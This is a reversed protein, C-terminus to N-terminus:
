NSNNLVESIAQAKILCEYYEEEANSNITIGGGVLYQLYETSSNYMISRIVVNFDFDGNSQIYGVSGSFIGRKVDEFKEILEMVKFKPVGTMSAMPFSAKLIDIFTIKENLEGSITSILQHVKPFSYVACLENVKVSNEKCIKNFDNRVLDVVMVNESINKPSNKLEQKLAEDLELNNSRHMTGKIPQSIITNNEKRLYREPSACILFKDNLKYYCNFPNPSIVSLSQYVKLPNIVVDDDYFHQCYNIEYCDGQQIHKKLEEINNIYKEKSVTQKIVLKKNELEGSKNYNSIEEFIKNCNNESSHIIAKNEKVEIIIKPIFFFMDPFLIHDPHISELKEFYNKADYAIHGFLWDSSNEFFNYAELFNLQNLEFSQISDVAVVYDFSHFQSAYNHNDLFCCINFQNAWNLMQNKFKESDLVSCEQKYQHNM